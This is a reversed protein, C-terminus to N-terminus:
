DVPEGMSLCRGEWYDAEADYIVGCPSSGVRGLSTGDVYLIGDGIRWEYDFATGGHSAIYAKMRNATDVVDVTSNWPLKFHNIFIVSISADEFSEPNPCNTLNLLLEVDEEPVIKIDRIAM